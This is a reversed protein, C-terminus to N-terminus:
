FRHSLSVSYSDKHYIPTRSLWIEPTLMTQKGLPTPLSLEVDNVFQGQAGDEKGYGPLYRLDLHFGPPIPASLQFVAHYEILHQPSYYEPRVDQMHETEVNFGVRFDTEAILQRNLEFDADYFKNGDNLDSYKGKSKMEWPGEPLWSISARAYREAIGENLAAATDYLARGGEVNTAWQDTWQSRLGAGGTYTTFDSQGSLFQGLVRADLTHFLGLRVATAVGIANQNVDPTGKEQYAGYLQNLTWRADGLSWTSLTQNFVWNTRNQNDEQYLFSPTWIYRKQTDISSKLSQLDPTDGFTSGQDALQEARTLDRGSYHIQAEETLIVRPSLDPEQRLEDLLSLAHHINGQWTAQRLLTIRALTFPNKEAIEQRLDVGTLDKRSDTLTLHQPDRTRINIGFSDEHYSSGYAKATEALNIEAAKPSSPLGLQGFDGEPYAFAVPTTALKKQMKQKGSDHDADIRETWEELTEVRGESPLWQRNILYLGSRGEADVPIRTRGLDGQLQFEWRGTKQYARLQDWSTYGPLNKDVNVLPVFVTAKLNYKELIPDANRIGDLRADDFAILIPKKVPLDKRGAVWDNMEAASVSQYGVATLARMQDEFVDTSLYVSYALLPDEQQTSLGHYLIAPVFPPPTKALFNQLLQTSGKVDGVDYLYRAQWILLYPDTPDIARAKLINALAERPNRIVNYADALSFYARLTSPNLQIVKKYLEIAEAIRGHQVLIDAQFMLARGDRPNKAIFADITALCKTIEGRAAYISALRMYRPEDPRQLDSLNAELYDQADELNNNVVAVDTLFDIARWKYNSQRVAVDQLKARATKHDGAYYLSRAEDFQFSIDEPSLRSASAWAHAAETYMGRLFYQRALRNYIEPNDKHTKELDSLIESAAEYDRLDSYLRGLALGIQVEDVGLPHAYPRLPEPRQGPLAPVTELLAWLDNRDKGPWPEKVNAVLAKLHDHATAMQDLHYLTEIEHVKFLLNEPALQIARDWLPLAKEYAGQLLAIRAQDAYINSEEPYQAKLRALESAATELDKLDIHIRAIALRVSLQDPNLALSKEYISIAAQKQGLMTRARALLNLMEIDQPLLQTLKLALEATDGYREAHWLAWVLEKKRDLNNPDQAALLRYISLAEDTKGARMLYAAQDRPDEPMKETEAALVPLTLCLVIGV